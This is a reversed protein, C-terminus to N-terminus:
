KSRRETSDRLGNLRANSTSFNTTKAAIKLGATAAVIPFRASQREPASDHDSKPQSQNVQHDPSPTPASTTVGSIRPQISLGIPFHRPMRQSSNAAKRASKTNSETVM